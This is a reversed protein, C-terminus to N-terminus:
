EANSVHFKDLFDPFTGGISDIPNQGPKVTADRDEESRCVGALEFTVAFQGPSNPFEFWTHRGQGVLFKSFL